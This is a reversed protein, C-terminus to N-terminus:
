YAPSRTPINKRRKRIPIEKEEEPMTDIIGKIFPRLQFINIYVGSFGLYEPRGRVLM